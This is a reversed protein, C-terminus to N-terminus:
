HLQALESTVKEKLVDDHSAADLSKQLADKKADGESVSALLAYRLQEYESGVRKNLLLKAADKKGQQILYEALDLSAQWRFEPSIEKNEMLERLNKETDSLNALRLTALTAYATDAYDHKVQNLLTKKKDDDRLSIAQYYMMAAAEKKTKQQESWLGGAFMAILVLVVALMLMQQNNQIWDVIKASKMDKKLEAMEEDFHSTPDVKEPLKSNNQTM